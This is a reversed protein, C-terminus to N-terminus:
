PLARQKDLGAIFQKLKNVLPVMPYEIDGTISASVDIGGTPKHELIFEVPVNKQRNMIEIIADATFERRYFIHSEKRVVNELSIIEM